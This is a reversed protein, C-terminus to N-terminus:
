IALEKNKLSLHLIFVSTEIIKLIVNHVKAVDTFFYAWAGCTGDGIELLKSTNQVQNSRAQTFENNPEGPPVPNGTSSTLLHKGYYYLKGSPDDVVAGGDIKVRSICIDNGAFKSWIADFVDQETSKGSAVACGIHVVTHFLEATQPTDRSV